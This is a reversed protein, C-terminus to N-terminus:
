YMGSELTFAQARGLSEAWLLRVSFGYLKRLVPKHLALM